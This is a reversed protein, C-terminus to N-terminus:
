LLPTGARLDDVHGEKPSEGVPRCILASHLGVPPTECSMPNHDNCSVYHDTPSHTKGSVQEARSSYKDPMNVAFFYPFILHSSPTVSLLLYLLPHYSVSSFYARHDPTPDSM